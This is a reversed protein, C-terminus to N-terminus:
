AVDAPAFDTAIRAFGAAAAARGTAAGLRSAGLRTASGGHDGLLRRLAIRGERNREALGAPIFTALDHLDALRLFGPRVEGDVYQRGFADGAADDDIGIRDLGHHGRRRPGDGLFGHDAIDRLLVLDALRGTRDSNSGKGSREWRRGPLSNERLSPLYLM